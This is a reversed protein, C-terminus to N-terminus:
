PSLLLQDLTDITMDAHQHLEDPTFSGARVAITLAGAQRGAQLGAVSDEIVVHLGDTHLQRSATLYCEPAPKTNHVDDSTITTDFTWQHHNCVATAQRRTSSTVLARPINHSDLANLLAAAGPLTPTTTIHTHYRDLLETHFEDANNPLHQHLFTRLTPANPLRRWTATFQETPAPGTHHQTWLETFVQPGVPESNVLTGDMDFLVAAAHQVAPHLTQRAAPTPSPAPTNTPTTNM